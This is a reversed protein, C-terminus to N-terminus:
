LPLPLILILNLKHSVNRNPNTNPDTILSPVVESSDKFKYGSTGAYIMNQTRNQIMKALNKLYKVKRQTRTAWGPQQSLAATDRSNLKLLKHPETYRLKGHSYLQLNVTLEANESVMYSQTWKRQLSELRKTRVVFPVNALVFKRGLHMQDDRLTPIAGLSANTWLEAVYEPKVVPGGSFVSEGANMREETVAWQAELERLNCMGSTTSSNVRMGAIVNMIVHSGTVILVGCCLMGFLPWLVRQNMM